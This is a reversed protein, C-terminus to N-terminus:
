AGVFGVGDEVRIEGGGLGFRVLLFAALAEACLLGFGMSGRGATDVVKTRITAEDGRPSPRTHLGQLNIRVECCEGPGIEGANALELEREPTAM